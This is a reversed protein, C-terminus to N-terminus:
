RQMNRLVSTEDELIQMKEPDIIVKYVDKAMQISVLENKVDMLVDEPDREEPNGVGAGGGSSILFHDGHKFHIPLRPDKVQTKVGDHIIYVKNFPTPQGGHQGLGHTSFGSM